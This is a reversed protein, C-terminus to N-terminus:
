GSSEDMCSGVVAAATRGGLRDMPRAVNSVRGMSSQAARINERESAKGPRAGLNAASNVRIKM